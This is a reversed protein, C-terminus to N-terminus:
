KNHIDSITGVTKHAENGFNQIGESYVIKVDIKTDHFFNTKGRYPPYEGGTARHTEIGKGDVM